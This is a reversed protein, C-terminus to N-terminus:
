GLLGRSFWSGSCHSASLAAGRFPVQPNQRCCTSCSGATHGPLGFSWGYWPTCLGNWQTIPLTTRIQETCGWKLCETCNQIDCYLCSMFSNYLTWILAVSITFLRLAFHLLLLRAGQTCEAWLLPASPLGWPPQLEVCPSSPCRQARSETVAVPSSPVFM